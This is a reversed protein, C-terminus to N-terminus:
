SALDTSFGTTVLFPHSNTSLPGNFFAFLDALITGGVKAHQPQVTPNVGNRFVFGAKRTSHVGRQTSHIDAM